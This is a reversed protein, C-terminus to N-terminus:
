SRRITHFSTSGGLGRGLNDTEQQHDVGLSQGVPTVVKGKFENKKFEDGSLIRRGGVGIGQCGRRPDTTRSSSSSIRVRSSNRHRGCAVSCSLCASAKVHEDHVLASWAGPTRGQSPRPAVSVILDQEPGCTGVVSVNSCQTTWSARCVYSHDGEYNWNQSRSLDSCGTPFCLESICVRGRVLRRRLNRRPINSASADVADPTDSLSRCGTWSPESDM